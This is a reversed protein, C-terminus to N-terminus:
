GRRAYDALLAEREEPRRKPCSVCKECGPAEYVLCCSARRVFTRGAVDVFRPEPLETGLADALRRGVGPEGADVAWSAIVDTVVAWLAPERVGSVAALREIVAGLTARLAVAVEATAATGATEDTRERGDAAVPAAEDAGARDRSGAGVPEAGAAGEPDAGATVGATVEAPRAPHVATRLFVREVSGDARLTLELRDLTPEPIPRQRALAGVVQEVLASATMCWWLTAGVRMSDTRWSANLDAIRAALWADDVLMRGRVPNM